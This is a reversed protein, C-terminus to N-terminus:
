YPESRAVRFRQSAASNGAKALESAYASGRPSPHEVLRTMANWADRDVERSALTDAIAPYNKWM